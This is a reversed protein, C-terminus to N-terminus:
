APARKAPPGGQLDDKTRRVDARGRLCQRTPSSVLGAFLSLCTLLVAHRARVAAVSGFLIAPTTGETVSRLSTPGTMLGMAVESTM